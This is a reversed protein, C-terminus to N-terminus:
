SRLKTWHSQSKLNSTASIGVLIMERTQKSKMPWMLGTLRKLTRVTEIEWLQWNTMLRGNRLSFAQTQTRQFKSSTNSEKFTWMVIRSWHERDTSSQTSSLTRASAITTSQASNTSKQGWPRYSAFTQMSVHSTIKMWVGKKKTWGGLTRSWTWWLTKCSSTTGRVSAYIQPRRWSNPSWANKRPPLEPATAELGTPTPTASWQKVSSTTSSTSSHSARISRPWMSHRRRRPMSSTTLARNSCSITAPERPATHAFRAQIAWM